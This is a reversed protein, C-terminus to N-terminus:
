KNIKKKKISILRNNCEYSYSLWNLLLCEYCKVNDVSYIFLDYKNYFLLGDKGYPVAGIYTAFLGVQDCNYVPVPNFRYREKEKKKKKKLINLIKVCVYNYMSVPSFRYRHYQSPQDCAVTEALKSSLWFFRFEVTCDYLSYEQWCVM